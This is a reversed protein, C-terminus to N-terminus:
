NIKTTTHSQNSHGSYSKTVLSKNANSQLYFPATAMAPQNLTIDLSLNIPKSSCNNNKFFAYNSSDQLYDLASTCNDIYAFHSYMDNLKVIDNLAWMLSKLDINFNHNSEFIADFNRQDWNTFSLTDLEESLFRVEYYLSVHSKTPSATTYGLVSGKSVFDGKKVNVNYLNTYATSFGLAHVIRVLNGYGYKQNGDRVSEVIGDATALVPESTTTYYDYGTNSSHSLPYYGMTVLNFDYSKRKAKQKMEFFALPNGNPIVQLITAKQADTLLGLDFDQPSIRENTYDRMKIMDELDEIKEKIVMLEQSKSEIDDQLLLNQEYLNQFENFANQKAVKVEELKKTILAMVFCGAVVICFLAIVGYVIAKQLVKTIAFQKSGNEDVITIVLENKQRM